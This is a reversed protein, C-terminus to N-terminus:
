IRIDLKKIQFVITNNYLKKLFNYKSNVLYIMRIYYYGSKKEILYLNELEFISIIKYIKYISKFKM